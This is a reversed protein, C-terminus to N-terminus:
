GISPVASVGPSGTVTVIVSASISSLESCAGKRQGATGAFLPADTKVYGLVKMCATASSAKLTPMVSNQLSPLGARQLVRTREQAMATACVWQLITPPRPIGPKRQVGTGICRRAAILAFATASTTALESISSRACMVRSQPRVGSVFPGGGIGEDLTAVFRRDIDWDFSLTPM